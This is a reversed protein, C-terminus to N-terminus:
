CDEARIAAIGRGGPWQRPDLKRAEYWDYVLLSALAREAAKCLRKNLAWCGESSLLWGEERMGMGMGACLVSIDIARAERMRGAKSIAAAVDFSVSLYNVLYALRRSTGGRVWRSALCAKKRLEINMLLFDLPRTVARRAISPDWCGGSEYVSEKAPVESTVLREKMMATARASAALRFIKGSRLM